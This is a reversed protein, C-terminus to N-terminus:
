RHQAGYHAGTTGGDLSLVTGTAFSATLLWVVADAMEEASAIKALPVRKLEDALAAAPDAAMAFEARLMPTDVSGPCLMNVRVDPALEAAMARTLGLLGSKSACYSVYHPMGLLSAESGINLISGAAGAAKMAAAVAQSMLFSGTLNTELTTHWNDFSMAELPEPLCVGASNVLGTIPTAQSAITAVADTVSEPSSVDCVVALHPGASVTPLTEVLSAIPAASRSVLVVRHGRAALAQASAAGIGSSAGTVIITGLTM